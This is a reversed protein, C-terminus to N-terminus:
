SLCTLMTLAARPSGEFLKIRDHGRRSHVPLCGFLASARRVMSGRPVTRAQVLRHCPGETGSRMTRKDVVEVAAGVILDVGYQLGNVQQQREFEEDHHDTDVHAPDFTCDCLM